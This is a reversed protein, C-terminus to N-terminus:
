KPTPQRDQLGEGKLPSPPPRRFLPRAELLGENHLEKMLEEAMSDGMERCILRLERGLDAIARDKHWLLEFFRDRSLSWNLSIVREWPQPKWVQGRMCAWPASREKQLAAKAEALAAQTDSLKKFLQRKDEFLDFALQRYGSWANAGLLEDVLVAVLPAAPQGLVLRRLAQTAIELRRRLRNSKKSM